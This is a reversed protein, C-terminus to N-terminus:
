SPATSSPAWPDEPLGEVDRRVQELDTAFDADPVPGARLLTLADKWSVQRGAGRETPGIRAVPRGHREVEFTERRYEVDNLVERFRKAATTASITRAVGWSIPNDSKSGVLQRGHLEGAVPKHRVFAAAAPCLHQQDPGPHVRGRGTSSRHGPCIEVPVGAM